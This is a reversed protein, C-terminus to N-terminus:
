RRGQKSRRKKTPAKAPPAASRKRDRKALKAAARRRKPPEAEVDTQEVGPAIDFLRPQTALMSLMRFMPAVIASPDPLVTATDDGQGKTLQDQQREINAIQRRLDDARLQRQETASLSRDLGDPAAVARLNPRDTEDSTDSRLEGAKEASASHAALPGQLMTQALAFWPPFPQRSSAANEAMATPSSQAAIDAGVPATPPRIVKDTGAVNEGVPQPFSQQNLSSAPISHVMSGLQSQLRAAQEIWPIYPEYMMGILRLYVDFPSNM